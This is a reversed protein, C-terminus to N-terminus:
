SAFILLYKRCLPIRMSPFNELVEPANIRGFDSESLGQLILRGTPNPANHFTRVRFWRDLLSCSDCSLSEEFNFVIHPAPRNLGRRLFARHADKKLPLPQPNRRVRNATCQFEALRINVVEVSVFVRRYVGFRASLVSLRLGAEIL